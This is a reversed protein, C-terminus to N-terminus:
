TRCDSELGDDSRVGTPVTAPNAREGLLLRGSGIWICDGATGWVGLEITGSVGAVGVAGIEEGTLRDVTTGCVGLM